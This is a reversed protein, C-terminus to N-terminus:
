GQTGKTMIRFLDKMEETDMVGFGSDKMGLMKDKIFVSHYDCYRLVNLAAKRLENKQM